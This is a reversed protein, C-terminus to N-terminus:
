VAGALTLENDTKRVLAAISQLLGERDGAPVLCEFSEGNRAAPTDRKEDDV